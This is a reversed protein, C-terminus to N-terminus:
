PSTQEAYAYMAKVSPRSLVLITFVGLVTGLPVAACALCAMVFSFTRRRHRRLGVGSIILCTAKGWLLLTIFGGIFAFIGGIAAAPAAGGGSTGSSAVAAAMVVGFIVYLVGFMGAMGLLGAYVFHCIALVGLHQEDESTQAPWAQPHPYPPAGPPGYPNM